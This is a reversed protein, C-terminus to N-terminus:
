QKLFVTKSKVSSPRMEDDQVVLDLYLNDGVKPVGLMISAPMANAGSVTIKITNPEVVDYSGGIPARGSTIFEGGPQFTWFNPDDDRQWDGVIWDKLPGQQKKRAPKGCGLSLLPLLAALGLALALAIKRRSM